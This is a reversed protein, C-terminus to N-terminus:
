LIKTEQDPNQCTDFIPVLAKRDSESFYGGGHVIMVGAYIFLGLESLFPISRTEIVHRSLEKTLMGFFLGLRKFIGFTTLSTDELFIKEM